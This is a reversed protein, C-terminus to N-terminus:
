ARVSDKMFGAISYLLACVIFLALFLVAYLQNGGIYVVHNWIDSITPLSVYTQLGAAAAMVFAAIPGLDNVRLLWLALGLIGGALALIFVTMSFTKDGSDLIIYLVASVFVALSVILRFFDGASRSSFIKNM